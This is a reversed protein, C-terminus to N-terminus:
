KDKHNIHVQYTKRRFHLNKLLSLTKQLESLDHDEVEMSEIPHAPQYSKRILKNLSSKCWMKNPFERRIRAGSWGKEKLLNEILALDKKQFM